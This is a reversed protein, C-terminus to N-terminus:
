SKQVCSKVANLHARDFDVHSLAEGEFIINASKSKPVPKMVMGLEWCNKQDSFQNPLGKKERRAYVARLPAFTGNFHSEEREWKARKHNLGLFSSQCEM